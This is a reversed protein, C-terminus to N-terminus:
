QSAANIVYVFLIIIAPSLNSRMCPVDTALMRKILHFTRLASANSCPRKSRRDSAQFEGARWFSFFFGDDSVDEMFRAARAVNKNQKILDIAKKVNANGDGDNSSFTAAFYVKYTSYLWGFFPFNPQFQFSPIADSNLFLYRLTDTQLSKGLKLRRLFPYLFHVWFKKLGDWYFTENGM